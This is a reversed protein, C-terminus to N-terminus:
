MFITLIGWWLSHFIPNWADPYFHKTYLWQLFFSSLAINIQIQYLFLIVSSSRILYFQYKSPFFCWTWPISYLILLDINHRWKYILSREAHICAAYFFISTLSYLNILLYVAVHSQQSVLALSQEMIALLFISNKEIRSFNCILIYRRLVM